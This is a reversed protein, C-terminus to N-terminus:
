RLTVPVTATRGDTYTVTATRMDPSAIEAAPWWTSWIGDALVATVDRDGIHLVLGRVDKGAQGWATGIGNSGQVGSSQLQVEGAPVPALPAEPGEVLEWAGGGGTANSLCFDLYAGRRILMSAVEGRQDGASISVAAGAGAQPATADVCWRKADPSLEAATRPTATSVWGALDAGDLGHSAPDLQRAVVHTGLVAVPAALLAVGAVILVARRRSRGTRRAGAPPRQPEAVLRELMADRRRRQVDDHPAAPEPDLPRLLQATTNM